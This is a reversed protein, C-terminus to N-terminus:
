MSQWKKYGIRCVNEFQLFIHLCLFEITHHSELKVFQIIQNKDADNSKQPPYGSSIVLCVQLKDGSPDSTRRPENM